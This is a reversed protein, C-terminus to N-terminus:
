IVGLSDLEADTPAVKALKVSEIAFFETAPADALCDTSQALAVLLAVATSFSRM